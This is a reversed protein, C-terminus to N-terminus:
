RPPTKRSRVIGRPRFDEDTTLLIQDIMVGDERNVLRLETQSSLRFTRVPRVWHWRQHIGDSVVATQEGVACTISDSCGDTWWARLWVAYDGDPLGPFRYAAAGTGKGAGLPIALAKHASADNAPTVCMPSGPPRLTHEAEYVWIAVSQRAPGDVLLLQSPAGAPPRLAPPLLCAAAAAGTLGMRPIWARMGHVRAAAPHLSCAMGAICAALMGTHRTLLVTFLGGLALAVAAGAVPAGSPESGPQRAAQVSRFATHALLFALLLAAPLGAEVALLAYTSNTDAPIKTDDPAIDSLFYGKIADKYRGLGHGTIPAAAVAGPTAEYEVMLRALYPTDAHHLRFRDWASPNLLVSAAIAALAGAAALLRRSGRAGLVATVAAGAIGCLLLGADQVAAGFACMAAAAAIGGARAPLWAVLFPLSLAAILALRAASMPQPADFLRGAASWAMSALCVIALLGALVRPESTGEKWSRSISGSGADSGGVAGISAFLVWAVGFAALFQVAERVGAALSGRDLPLLGLCVSALLAVHLWSPLHLRCRSAVLAVALAALLCMSVPVGGVRIGSLGSVVLAAALISVIGRNRSAAQTHNNVPGSDM